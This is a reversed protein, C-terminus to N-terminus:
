GPLRLESTTRCSEDPVNEVKFAVTVTVSLLPV